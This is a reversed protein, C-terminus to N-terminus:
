KTGKFKVWAEAVKGITNPGITVVVFAWATAQVIAPLIIDYHPVTRIVEKAEGNVMVTYTPFIMPILIVITTLILLVMLTVRTGFNHKSWWDQVKGITKTVKDEEM